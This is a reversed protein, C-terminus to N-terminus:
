FAEKTPVRNLEEIIEKLSLQNNVDFEEGKIRYELPEIQSAPVEQLKRGDYKGSDMVRNGAYMFEIASAAMKGVEEIPHTPNDTIVRDIPFMRGQLFQELFHGTYLVVLLSYRFISQNAQSMKTVVASTKSREITGVLHDGHHYYVTAKIESFSIREKKGSFEVTGDGSGLSVECRVIDGEQQRIIRTIAYHKHYHTPNEILEATDRVRRDLGQPLYIKKDETM